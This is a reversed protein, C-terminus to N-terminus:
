DRGGERGGKRERKRKRILSVGDDDRKTVYRRGQRGHDM